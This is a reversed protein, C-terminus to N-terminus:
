NCACTLIDVPYLLGGARSKYVIILVLFLFLLVYLYIYALSYNSFASSLTFVILLFSTSRNSMERDLLVLVISLLFIEGILGRNNGIIVIYFVNTSVFLFSSLFAIKDNTQKQVVRFKGLPM